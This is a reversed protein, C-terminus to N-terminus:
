LELIEINKFECPHSESQISIFGQKLPSGKMSKWYEQNADVNGGIQPKYYTFVNKGNIFHKIISDNRVEIEIQVWQDGDFTDSSSSRCHPTFLKDDIVVNTGPTCLNGTPRDGTALGGLLQVEISVPFEQDIGMHEPAECHVMVGSNRTAWGAGDNIQDGIFRYDMRFKYNSFAKNYFIHGYSANFKGDYEDYNVKMVGNEVRFTNKYNKGVPQGKIKITWGDLNKGNFLSVWTSSTAKEKFNCNTFFVIFSLSLLLFPIRYKKM